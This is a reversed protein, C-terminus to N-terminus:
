RGGGPELGKALEACFREAEGVPDSAGALRRVLASGVIAADADAVVGRVHEATSIGFGVAIPLGSGGGGSGGSGGSGMAQRLKSVRGTIQPTESQEGTIGARALLYVFGSCAQAIEAARAPPTSPAILLAFGIGAETAAARLAGSAELTVDPVIVGDFGAEALTRVFAAGGNRHVLSVSVMAVIGLTLSARAKAVEDLLGRVTQGAELSEHMAQAIVSGDAIPDSFAFGIEVVGAGARQLAHLLEGVPVGVPHGGVVFPMLVGRKKSRAESFVGGLREIGNM